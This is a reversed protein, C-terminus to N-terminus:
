VVELFVDHMPPSSPFSVLLPHAAAMSDITLGFDGSPRVGKSRAGPMLGLPFSVFRFSVFRFSVFSSWHRTM